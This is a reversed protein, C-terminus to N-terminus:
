FSCRCARLTGFEGFVAGIIGLSVTFITGIGADSTISGGEVFQLESPSLEVFGFKSERSSPFESM